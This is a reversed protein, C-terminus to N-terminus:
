MLPQGSFQLGLSPMVAWVKAEKKTAQQMSPLRLGRQELSAFGYSVFPTSM